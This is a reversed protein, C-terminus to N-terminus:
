FLGSAMSSGFDSIHGKVAVVYLLGLVFLVLIVAAMMASYGYFPSKDLEGFEQIGMYLLIATMVLAAIIFVIALPAYILGALMNFIHIVVLPLTAVTVMNLAQVITAQKKFVFSVLAWVGLATLGYAAAGILLSIGFIALFPYIDGMSVYDSFGGLISSLLQSFMELGVIAAGLAYAVVGIAGFLAWEHTNSKAAGAVATEPSKWFSKIVSVFNTVMPNPKATRVPASVSAATQAVATGCNACFRAGDDLQTGCNKCFM